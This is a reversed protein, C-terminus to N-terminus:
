LVASHATVECGCGLPLNVGLGKAKKGFLHERTLILGCWRMMQYPQQM